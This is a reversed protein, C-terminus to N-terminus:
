GVYEELTIGKEHIQMAATRGVFRYHWPEFSYGTVEDKGEPFREIFGFKWANDKLWGYVEQYMFSQDAAPLNHMDCCLGTQHESTGEKASYTDVIAMAEAETLSPDDSMEQAVYSAYLTQQYEYSRYASTVSVDTYGAANMETYLAELAKEACLRMQQTQRGDQRTNVVDVLDDPKMSADATHTRNVLVLYEEADKPDMYEEYESLDAIFEVKVPEIGVASGDVTDPAKAAKVVFTAEEPIPQKDIDTEATKTRIVTAKHHDRDETIDIGSMYTTVFDAPVYVEDGSFYAEGSIRLETGSIWAERSDKHFEAYEERGTGSASVTDDAFVFKATDADGTRKMSLLEAIKTFSVYLRGDHYALSEDVRYEDKEYTIKMDSGIRDPASFFYVAFGIGVAAALVGFVVLFLVIRAGTPSMGKKKKGRSGGSRNPVRYTGTDYPDRTRHGTAIDDQRMSRMDRRANRDTEPLVWDRENKRRDAM